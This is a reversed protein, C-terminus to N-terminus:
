LLTLTGQIMAPVDVPKGTNAQSDERLFTVGRNPWKPYDEIVCRPLERQQGYAASNSSRREQTSAVGVAHARPPTSDVVRAHAVARLNEESSRVPSDLQPVESGARADM